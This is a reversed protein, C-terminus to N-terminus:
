AYAREMLERRRKQRARRAGPAADGLHFFGCACHYVKRPKRGGNLHRKAVQAAADWSSFPVKGDCGSVRRYHWSVSEMLTEYESRHIRHEGLFHFLVARAFRCHELTIM